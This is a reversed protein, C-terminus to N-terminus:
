AFAALPIEAFILTVSTGITGTITPSTRSPNAIAKTRPNQQRRELEVPRQVRDVRSEICFSGVATRVEGAAEAVVRLDEGNPLLELLRKM